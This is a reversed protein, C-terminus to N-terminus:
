EMKRILVENFDIKSKSSLYLDDYENGGGSNGSAVPGSVYGGGTTHEPHIKVPGHNSIPIDSSSSSSSFTSTSPEQYTKSNDDGGVLKPAFTINVPQPQLQSSPTQPQYIGGGNMPSIEPHSNAMPYIYGGSQYPYEQSPTYIDGKTVIKVNDKAELNENDETRISIFENGVTQITWLRAPKVDGRFHVIDGKKLEVPVSETNPPPPFDPSSDMNAPSYPIYQPSDSNAPSNDSFSSPVMAPSYPAYQPSNEITPEAVEPVPSISTNDVLSMPTNEPPQARGLKSQISQIVTKPTVKVQPQNHSESAMILDLNHSFSMNEMQQINDETILRM